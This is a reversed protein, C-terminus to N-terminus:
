NDENSHIKKHDEITLLELNTYHNLQILEEETKAFKLFIKHHINYKNKELFDEEKFDIYRIKANKFLYEKFEEFTCGLIKATKTNKFFGHRIFSKKILSRIIESLKFIKNQQKRKKRNENRKNKYKISYEKKQKKIVEKNKKRYEKMQKKIKEKNEEYYNQQYEKIEEKHIESYNKNRELIVERNDEYKQKQKELIIEKNEEYYQRQKEILIEKNDEYYQKKQKRNCENCDTRLGDKSDKRKPFQDLSKEIGCKSCIKTM